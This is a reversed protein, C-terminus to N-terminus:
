KAGKFMDKMKDFLPSQPKRKDEGMIRAFDEVAKKQASNLGTPVQVKVLVHQDGKHRGRLHPFGMERLRFISGTQTGAPVRLKEAGYLTPVEIEDGLAAQAFSVPVEIFVDQGDRKFFEHPRVNIFVYLDGAPGGLSGPEGEAVLRLKQGNDVGAPVTIRVKKTSRMKGGGRCKPCPDPVLRGAGNCAPCTSSNVVTGFITQRTQRMEGSGGCRKCKAPHSGSVSGTGRCADCDALTPIELEAESGFAADGFSIEIDYRLDAGRCPGSRGPRAGGGFFMEFIDGFGRFGMDEFGGFGGAGGSLGDHGYRDYVQRKDADSLVSYAEGLEKFRSEAEPDGPNIDPHLQRAMRRYAKKLTDPDAGREVGLVEYYDRKEM